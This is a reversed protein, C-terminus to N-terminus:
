DSRDLTLGHRRLLAHFNTRQIGVDEAAKSINGGCRQLAAKLFRVELEKIAALSVERKLKKFEDWTRPL